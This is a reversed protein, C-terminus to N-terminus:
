INIVLRLTEWTVERHKLIAKQEAKCIEIRRIVEPNTFDIKKVELTIGPRLICKATIRM